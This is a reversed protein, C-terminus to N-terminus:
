PAEALRQLTTAVAIAVVKECEWCQGDNAKRLCYLILWAEHLDERLQCAEVASVKECVHAARHETLAEYAAKEARIVRRLDRDKIVPM